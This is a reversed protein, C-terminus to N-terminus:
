AGLAEKIRAWFGEERRPPEGEHRALEAFLREQEPTLSEPTWVSARILLDGRGAQGLRPLGKGRLKLITGGQIGAPIQITEEALPTPAAQAQSAQGDDALANAAVAGVAAGAVGAAVMGGVGPGSKQPATAPAVPQQAPTAQRPQQYSQTPTASRSMGHSKGGGARKAEALPAVLLMAALIGAVLSRQRVEM